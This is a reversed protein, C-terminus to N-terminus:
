RKRRKKRDGANRGSRSPPGSKKSPNATPQARGPVAPKRVDTAGPRQTKGEAPPQRRAKQGTGARGDGRVSAPATEGARRRRTLMYQQQAIQVGNTTTWYLVLGAPFFFGWVGFLLPMIRTLTQQQQSGGPSMRQMQRQQFFTTGVMLLALVYYPIRVPIGSGCDLTPNQGLDPVKSADINVTQGSQAASCLLNMGLFQPDRETVLDVYLQSDGNDVGIVPDADNHPIHTLGLPFQLVAFLAILVPIQALLPLCGSLPNVGHERYLKMMEENLRQRNGKYKRQLEKVKPQLAQMASMSHIQKFALPLLLVRISLTLLIIAVGYNPVYEYFFALVAGLGDLLAQFVASV